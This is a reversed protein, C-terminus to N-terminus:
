ERPKEGEPLEIPVVADAREQLVNPDVEALEIVRLYKELIEETWMTPTKDKDM